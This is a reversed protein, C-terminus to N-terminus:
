GELIRKLNQFATELAEGLGEVRPGGGQGFNKRGGGGGGLAKAAVSAIEGCNVGKEVAKQGAAVVLSAVRNSSGLVIVTYPDRSMEEALKIMEDVGMGPMEERIVLFGGIKTGRERLLPSTLSALKKRLAEVEKYLLKREEVLKVVAKELGEEQVELLSALRTREEERKRIEELAAKGVAFELREVGDQIRETRLIKLMGIEGTSSCHTGACAQTNWGVVEVVRLKKGPVVGGQYLVFGYRKEAENRDMFRARIPLNALIVENAKREIEVVEEPELRKFHTIDLRSKDPSKQAGHQWVHDGLVRKAAELLVHTASHHRMLSSRREWDVRGLVRDGKKFPNSTLHHVVAEGVKEVKVVEVKEGKGELFGSDGEQGGGEPYFATRDLVVEKGESWVVKAKFEKLYPDEYFLLRTRPLRKEERREGGEKKGSAHREAVKIYFDEPVEVKVGMEEGVEKVVEPPLGHSDYFEFLKEQPLSPTELSSLTREVLRRGRTIADLYRKEELEVVRLIYERKEELEPQSLFELEMVMLESLPLKLGAERLLRLTRRLVLRALYGERANSPTIGDGLMFALCRLHDAIAYLAELPTMWRDLKERNVGSREAVKERLLALDRGSEVDILGAIKSHLELLEEPPREIGAERELRRLLPGFIAEYVSTSGQSVWAIRELGYGTDVIQLPLKRYEGNVVGYRMFVLTALELGGANVEFDEGANGGGEWFDEVYNLDEERIGLERTFFEHCLEVTRDNWYIREKKSNFAHHGGMHFLTLHRGSRGVNDIDNLRISPQSVVLPNAPPPVQGSTVWPQFNAISAITLFIDERWRAVVPYRKIIKHGRREFFKLFIREAEKLSLRRKTLPKGIFSYEDCPTDGCTKREPHLTWFWRGCGECKRREFGKERFLEVRYLKGAKKM